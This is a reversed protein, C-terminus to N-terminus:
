RRLGDRSRQVALAYGERYDPRVMATAAYLARSGGCCVDIGHREFVEIGPAPRL